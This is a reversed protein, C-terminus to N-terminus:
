LRQKSFNTRRRCSASAAHTKNSTADCRRNRRATMEGEKLRHNAQKTLARPRYRSVLGTSRSLVKQQWFSTIAPLQPNRM